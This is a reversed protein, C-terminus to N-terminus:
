LLCNRNVMYNISYVRLDVVNQLWGVATHLYHHVCKKCAKIVFLFCSLQWVRHGFILLSLALMCSYLLLPDQHM